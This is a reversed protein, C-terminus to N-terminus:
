ARSPDAARTWLVTGTGALLTAGSGLTLNLNVPCGVALLERTRLFIGGRSVDAAHRDLFEGLTKCDFRMKLEIPASPMAAVIENEPGTSMAENGMTGRHWLM